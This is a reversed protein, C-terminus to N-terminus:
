KSFAPGIGLGAQWRLSRPFDKDYDLRQGGARLLYTPRSVGGRLALSLRRGLKFYLAFDAGFDVGFGGLLDNKRAGAVPLMTIPDITSTDTIRQHGFAFGVGAYPLLAPRVRWWYPLAILDVAVDLQLRNVRLDLDSVADGIWRDRSYVFGPLIRPHVLFDVGLDLGTKESVDAGDFSQDAVRSAYMGRVWFNGDDPKKDRWYERIEPGYKGSGPGPRPGPRPPRQKKPELEVDDWRGSPIFSAWYFPHETKKHRVLKLQAERLAQSRGDGHKLKKYYAVMLDRTAEDDVKWLSIVQSEAGAIVLARRLGYVGEGNRVEGVGTECASLVVLKTGWLDLSSVELATLIGDDDGDARLNAGRMALGSRVLPNEAGPPPAFDDDSKVYKAGRAGPGAIMEDTLFFGHTAVHLVAPRQAGRLAAESADDGILLRADDVVKGIAKAEEATGPLPPFSIGTMDASRRGSSSSPGGEGKAFDPNGVVVAGISSPRENDFRLLDRGSSLYSFEYERVLWRGREDALAAFPVLNLAGDPSVLVHEVKKLSPRIKAMTMRDLRQALAMVDRYDPNALANRLNAVADDIPKAPGLPIMTADGTRRVVYAVYHEEGFAKAFSKYRADFRRYVAIEVLAADEPIEAQVRGLEVPQLDEPVANADGLKRELADVETQAAAVKARYDDPSEKEGPGRVMLTAVQGRLEQLRDFDARTSDDLRARVAQQAGSVADLVRGKRRLVTNVGLRTAAADNAAYHVNYSIVRDTGSAYGELTARKQAESGYSVEQILHRENLEAARTALSITLAPDRGAAWLTEAYHNLTAGIAPSEAPLKQEQVALIRKWIAIADDYRGMSRYLRGLRTSSNIRVTTDEGYVSANIADERELLPLADDFRGIEEYAQGLDGLAGVLRVDGGFDREALELRTKLEAIAEDLKGQDLAVAGLGAHSTELEDGLSSIKEAEAIAERYIAKSKDYNGRSRELSAMGNKAAALLKSDGGQQARELNERLLKEAAGFEQRQIHLQALVTRYTPLEANNPEDRELISVGDRALEYALDLKGDQFAQMSAIIKDLGPSSQTPADGFGMQKKAEAFLADAEADRGLKRLSDIVVVSAVQTEQDKWGVLRVLAPLAVQGLDLALQWEQAQYAAFAAQFTMRAQGESMDEPKPLEDDPESRAYAPPALLGIPAAIVLSLALALTRAAM